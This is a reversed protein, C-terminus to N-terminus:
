GLWPPNSIRSSDRSYPLGLDDSLSSVRQNDPGVETAGPGAAALEVAADIRQMEAFSEGLNANFMGVFQEALEQGRMGCVHKFGMLRFASM